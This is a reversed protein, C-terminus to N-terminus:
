YHSNLPPHGTTFVPQPPEGNTQGLPRFIILPWFIVPRSCLAVLLGDPRHLGMIMLKDAFACFNWFHSPCCASMTMGIDGELGTPPLYSSFRYIGIYVRSGLDNDTCFTSVSSCDSGHLLRLMYTHAPQHLLRPLCTSSDVILQTNVRTTSGPISSIQNLTANSRSPLSWDSSGFVIPIKIFINQMNYIQSIM